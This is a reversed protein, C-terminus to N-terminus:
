LHSPQGSIVLVAFSLARVIAFPMVYFHSSLLLAYGEVIRTGM